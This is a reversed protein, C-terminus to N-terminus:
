KDKLHYSQDLWAILEPNIDEHNYVDLCIKYIKASMSVYQSIRQSEIVQSYAFRVELRDKKPLAALFDYKGFLHICCPISVIQCPGITANIEYFLFDFLDKALEKNSFHKELPIRQCSHPQAAKEFIRGCKPCTWM